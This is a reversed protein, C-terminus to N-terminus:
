FFGISATKESCDIYYGDISKSYDSINYKKFIRKNIIQDTKIFYRHQLDLKNDINNNNISLKSNNINITDGPLGVCRKVYNEKKDVPRGLKEAPWNFVVCDNRKIKGDIM